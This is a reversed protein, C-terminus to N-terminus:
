GQFENKISPKLQSVRYDSGTVTVPYLKGELLSMASDGYTGKLESKTYNTTLLTPLRHQARYRILNDFITQVFGSGGRHEKGVDDLLLFHAQQCRAKIGGDDGNTSKWGRQIQEVLEGLSTAYVDWRARLLYKLTIMALTTKGPGPPGAYLIGVGKDKMQPLNTLYKQTKKKADDPGEYNFFDVEWYDEGINADKLQLALLGKPRIVNGM